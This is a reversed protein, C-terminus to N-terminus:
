RFLNGQNKICKVSLLLGSTSVITIWINIESKWIILSHERLENTSLPKCSWQSVSIWIRMKWSNEVQKLLWFSWQNGGYIVKIVNEPAGSICLSLFPFTLGCFLSRQCFILMHRSKLIKKSYFIWFKHVSKRLGISQFKVSNLVFSFCSELGLLFLM